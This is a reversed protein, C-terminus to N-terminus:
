PIMYINKHWYIIDLIWYCFNIKGEQLHINKMLKQSRKNTVRQEKTNGSDQVILHIRVKILSNQFQDLQAGNQVILHLFNRQKKDKVSLNAGKKLLLHVMEWHGKAAALLLPTYGYSDCSNLDSGQLLNFSLNITTISKHLVIKEIYLILKFLILVLDVNALISIYLHSVKGPTTVLMSSLSM